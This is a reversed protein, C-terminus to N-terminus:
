RGKRAADNSGGREPAGPAISRNLERWDKPEVVDYARVGAGVPAYRPQRIAVTPDAPATLYPPTASSCAALPALMGLIALTMPNM